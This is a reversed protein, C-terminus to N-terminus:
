FFTGEEGLQIQSKLLKVLQNIITECGLINSLLSRGSIVKM